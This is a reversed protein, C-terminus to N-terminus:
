AQCTLKVTANLKINGDCGIYLGKREGLHVSKNEEQDEQYGKCKTRYVLSTHDQFSEVIGSASIQTEQKDEQKDLEKM